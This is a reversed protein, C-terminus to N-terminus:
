VRFELGEVEAWDRGEAVAEERTVYRGIGTQWPEWFGNMEPNWWMQVAFWGAGGHTTTVYNSRDVTPIPM